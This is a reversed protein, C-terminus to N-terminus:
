PNDTAVKGFCCPQIATISVMPVLFDLISVIQDIWFFSVLWQDLLDRQDRGVRVDWALVSTLYSVQHCMVPVIVYWLKLVSWLFNEM